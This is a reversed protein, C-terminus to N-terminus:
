NLTPPLPTAIVQSMAGGEQRKIDFKYVVPPRDNSAHIQLLVEKLPKLDITEHSVHSKTGNARIMKQLTALVELQSQSRELDAQTRKSSDALVQKLLDVLEAFGTVERAEPDMIVKASKGLAKLDMETITKDM